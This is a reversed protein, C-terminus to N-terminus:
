MSLGNAMVIGGNLATLQAQLRAMMQFKGDELTELRAVSINTQSYVEYGGSDALVGDILESVPQGKYTGNGTDGGMPISLWWDQAAKNSTDM